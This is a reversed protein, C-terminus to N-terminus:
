IGDSIYQAIQPRIEIAPPTKFIMPVSKKTAQLSLLVKGQRFHDM